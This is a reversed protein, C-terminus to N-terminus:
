TVNEWMSPLCTPFTIEKVESNGSEDLRDYIAPSIASVEAGTDLTYTILLDNIKVKKAEANPSLDNRLVNTRPGSGSTCPQATVNKVNANTLPANLYPCNRMHGPEKCGHCVMPKIPNLEPWASNQRPNQPHRPSHHQLLKIQIGKHSPTYSTASPNYVNITAGNNQAPPRQQEPTRPYQQRPPPTSLAIVSSNMTKRRALDDIIVNLDNAYEAIQVCLDMKEINDCM